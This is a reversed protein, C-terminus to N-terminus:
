ERLINVIFVYLSFAKKPEDGGGGQPRDYNVLTWFQLHARTSTM